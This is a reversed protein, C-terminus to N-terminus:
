NYWNFSTLKSPGGIDKATIASRPKPPSVNNFDVSKLYSNESVQSMTSPSLENTFDIGKLYPNTSSDQQVPTKMVPSAAASQADNRKSEFGAYTNGWDFSLVSAHHPSQKQPQPLSQAQAVPQAREEADPQIKPLARLEEVKVPAGQADEEPSAAAQPVNHRTLGAVMGLVNSVMQADDPPKWNLFDHHNSATPVEVSVDPSTIEAQQAPAEMAQAKVEPTQTDIKKASLGAYTNGWDFSLVSAHHQPQQQPQPLKSQVEPPQVSVSQIQPQAAPEPMPVPPARVNEVATAVVEPSQPATGGKLSGVMGLVNSVVQDDSVPKWNMFDHHKPVSPVQVEMDPATMEAKPEAQPSDSAADAGDAPNMQALPHRTKLLGLSRKTLLANVMAYADPNTAKLEAMGAEDGPDQHTRLWERATQMANGNRGFSEGAVISAMSTMVVFVFHAM